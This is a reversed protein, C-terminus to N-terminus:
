QIEFIPADRRPNRKPRRLKRVMYILVLASAIVLVQTWKITDRGKWRRYLCVIGMSVSYTLYLVSWILTFTGASSAVANILAAICLIIRLPSRIKRLAMSLRSLGNKARGGKGTAMWISIIWLSITLPITVNACIMVIFNMLREM